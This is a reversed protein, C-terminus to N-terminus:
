RRWVGGVSRDRLRRPIIGVDMDAYYEFRKTLIKQREDFPMFRRAYRNRKHLDDRLLNKKAQLIEVILAFENVGIDLRLVDTHIRRM